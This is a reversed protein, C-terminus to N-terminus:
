ISPLTAEVAEELLFGLWALLAREPAESSEPDFVDEESVDLRTGILLRLGNLVQMWNDLQDGDLSKQDVTAILDDAATLRNSILDNHVLDVYDAEHESDNVYATPYLRKLGPDTDATVVTRFQAALEALLEREESGLLVLVQDGDRQFSLTKRRRLIM